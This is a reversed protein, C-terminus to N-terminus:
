PTSRPADDLGVVPERSACMTVELGDGNTPDGRDDRPRKSASVRGM